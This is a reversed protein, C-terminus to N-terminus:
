EPATKRGLNKPSLVSQGQRLGDPEALKLFLRTRCHVRPRLSRRDSPPTDSAIPEPSLSQPPARLEM